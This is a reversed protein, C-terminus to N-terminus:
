LKEPNIGWGQKRTGCCLYFPLGSGCPCLKGKDWHGHTWGKSPDRKSPVIFFPFVIEQRHFESLKEKTTKGRLSGSKLVDQWADFLLDRIMDQEALTGFAHSKKARLYKGIQIAYFARWDDLDPHAQKAMGYENAFRKVYHTYMRIGCLRKASTWSKVASDHLGVKRLVLGTYYFIRALDRRSRVPCVKLAVELYKLARAPDHNSLQKLGRDLYCHWKKGEKMSRNM